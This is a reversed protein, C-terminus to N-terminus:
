TEWTGQVRAFNRQIGVCRWLKAKRDLFPSRLLQSSEFRSILWESFYIQWSEALRESQEWIEPKGM